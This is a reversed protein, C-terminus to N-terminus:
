KKIALLQEGLVKKLEAQNRPMHAVDVKGVIRVEVGKCVGLAIAPNTNKGGVSVRSGADLLVDIQNRKRPHMSDAIVRLGIQDEVVSLGCTTSTSSDPVIQIVTGFPLKEALDKSRAAVVDSDSYAGSATISPDSDTQEVVANYATMSVNFSDRAPLLADSAAFASGSLNSMLLFGALAKTIALNM